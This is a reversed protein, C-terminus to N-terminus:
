KKSSCKDALSSKLNSIKEQRQDASLLITKGGEEWAIPTDGLLVTLNGSQQKCYTKLKKAYDKDISQQSVKTDTNDSKQTKNVAISSPSNSNTKRPTYSYGTKIKKTPLGAAKRIENEINEAETRGPAPRDTYNVQQRDDIWKYVTSDMQAFTSQSLTILLIISLNNTYKNM